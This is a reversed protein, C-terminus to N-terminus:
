SLGALKAGAQATASLVTGNSSVPQTTLTGGKVLTGLASSFTTIASKVSAVASIQSTLTDYKGSLAADQTAYQATVLSSVLSTTDIGSGSGLSTLLSQAATSVVNGTTTTTTTATATGTSSTASTTTTM